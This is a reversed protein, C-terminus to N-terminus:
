LSSKLKALEKAWDALMAKRAADYGITQCEGKGIELEISKAEGPKLDFAFRAAGKGRGM